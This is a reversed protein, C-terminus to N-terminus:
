VIGTRGFLGYGSMMFTVTLIWPTALSNLSMLGLLAHPGFLIEGRNNVSIAFSIAGDSARSNWADKCCFIM